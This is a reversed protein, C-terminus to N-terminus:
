ARMTPCIPRRQATERLDVREVCGVAAPVDNDFETHVAEFGEILGQL